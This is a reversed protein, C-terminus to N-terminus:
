PRVLYPSQLFAQDIAPLASPLPTGLGDVYAHAYATWVVELQAAGGDARAAADRLDILEVVLTGSKYAMTSYSWPTYFQGGPYGWFTPTTPYGPTNAWSGPYISTSVSVTLFATTAVGLDPAATRAVRRYGRAELNSAIQEIIAESRETPLTGADSLPSVLTVADTTAFTAFGGFDVQPDFKTVVVPEATRVDAGPEPVCSAAVLV